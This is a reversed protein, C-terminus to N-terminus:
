RFDAGQLALDSYYDSMGHIRATRLAKKTTYATDFRKNVANKIRHENDLLDQMIYANHIRKSEKEREHKRVVKPIIVRIIAAIIKKM